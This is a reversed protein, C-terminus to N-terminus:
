QADSGLVPFAVDVPGLRRIRSEYVQARSPSVAGESPTPARFGALGAALRVLAAFGLALFVAGCILVGREIRDTNIIHDPFAYLCTRTSHIEAVANLFDTRWRGSGSSGPGM